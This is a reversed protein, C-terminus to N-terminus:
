ALRASPRWVNAEPHLLPVEVIPTCIWGRRLIHIYTHNWLRAIINDRDTRIRNNQFRLWASFCSTACCRYVVSSITDCLMFCPTFACRFLCTVRLQQISCHVLDFPLGISKFLRYNFTRAFPRLYYDIFQSEKSFHLIRTNWEGGSEADSEILVARARAPVKEGSAFWSRVLLLLSSLLKTVPFRRLRDIM